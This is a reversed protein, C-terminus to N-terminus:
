KVWTLEKYYEKNGKTVIKSPKGTNPNNGYCDLLDDNLYFGITDKSNNKLHNIITMRIKAIDFGLVEFFVEDTEFSELYYRKVTKKKM